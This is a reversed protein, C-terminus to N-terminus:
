KSCGVQTSNKCQKNVKASLVDEKIYQTKYLELIDFVRTIEM